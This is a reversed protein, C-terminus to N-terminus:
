LDPITWKKPNRNQYKETQALNRKSFELVQKFTKQQNEPLRKILSSLVEQHKLSATKLKTFLANDPKKPMRPFEDNLLTFNHEARLVTKEALPVNKKDILMATALIGKDTQLLYFEVKRKPDTILFGTIRDRVLKLKYLPNDPLIGPYALDYKIHSSSSADEGYASNGFFAFIGLFIIFIFIFLKKIVM